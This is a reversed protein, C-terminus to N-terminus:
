CLDIDCGDGIGFAHTRTRNNPIASQQHVYDIIEEPNAVEGDTLLFINKIFGPTVQDYAM